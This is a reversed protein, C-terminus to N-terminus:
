ISMGAARDDVKQASLLVLLLAFIALLACLALSPSDAFFRDVAEARGLWLMGAAIALLAAVQAALQRLMGRRQAELREDLAIRAQIRVVFLRDPSRAEPALATTLFREFPDSMM